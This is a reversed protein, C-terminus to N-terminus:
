VIYIIIICSFIYLFCWKYLSMINKMGLRNKTYFNQLSQVGWHSHTEITDSVIQSFRCSATLNNPTKRTCIKGRESQIRLCVGYRDMNLGFAPFHPGSFNRIRVRKMCHKEIQLPARPCRSVHVKLNNFCKNFHHFYLIFITNVNAINFGKM